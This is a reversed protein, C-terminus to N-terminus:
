RCPTPSPGCSPTASSTPSASRARARHPRPLRQHGQPQGRAAQGARQPLQHGDPRRPQAGHQRRDVRAPAASRSAPPEAAPPRPPRRPPAPGARRHPAPPPPAAPPPPPAPPPAAARRRPRPSRAADLPLRRLVGALEREGLRSRGPVARVDRRRALRQGSSPRPRTGTRRRTRRRSPWAATSM